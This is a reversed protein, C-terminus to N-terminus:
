IRGRIGSDLDEGEQRGGGQAWGQRQGEWKLLHPGTPLLAEAFGPFTSSQRGDWSALLSALFLGKALAKLLFWVQWCQSKQVELRRFPLLILKQQM